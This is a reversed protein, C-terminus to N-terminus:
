RAVPRPPGGMLRDLLANVYLGEALHVRAERWRASGERLPALRQALAAGAFSVVVLAMVGWTVVGPEPAPPLLPSLWARAGAQLAFYALTVGAAGAAIRLRLRAGGGAQAVLMGLGLVLVVGLAQAQVPAGTALGAAWGIGAYLVLALALGGVARGPAAPEPRGHARVQEAAGGAALFAHAKYLSHAAIHLTALAFLGLGCQLAMLGMQSVTSWALAGKAAPQVLMVLAGFLATFGGVIALLHLAPASLLMVDAFRIVLFGGANVIGAHLLASVPTPTEMVEPLWGHFPFQASK